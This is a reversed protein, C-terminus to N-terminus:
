KTTFSIVGSCGEGNANYACVKYYYTTKSAFSTDNYVTTNPGVTGIVALTLPSLGRYIRFGDEDNSNDTWTLEIRKGKQKANLNTPAAPPEVPCTPTTANDINSYASNGASNYARVRYWYTTNEAVTTDSYNTVNAGVTDIESFTTGNLSREIKFGTENDANDTWALDIQDCAVADATLGTPAAPPEVVGGGIADNPLSSGLHTIISPIPLGRNPCAACHHLSVVLHDAYALVPSGSSGGATDAYYGIDGPGGICPTANTTYVKAYPGDVDSVVALQKGWAGPHQPIYIREGVTPLTDRLQLYGYTSTINTPLLVLTYDLDYDNKILTGSTAEVTGPCALWSACNTNCTDGEAMFEFDTNDATSQSGICHNNTMVHGESGLLWGTCASTGGILLRCVARSENYMTTGEYCPAWEKDDGSCISELQAEEELGSLVADIYGPEFGRVWQDVEIGWGGRRSHSYLRMIATDGPIHTAWFESLVAEGGRVVKGKERYTYYFRGDPSSIELHDGPKLDFRSFHISIYGANPSHFVHEWVTRGPYPHPSNVTEFVHEGVTVRSYLCTSGLSLFMVIVFFTLLKRM